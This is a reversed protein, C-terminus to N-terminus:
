STVLKSSELYSLAEAVIVGFAFLEEESNMMPALDYVLHGMRYGPVTLVAPLKAEVAEAIEQWREPSIDPFLTELSTAQANITM